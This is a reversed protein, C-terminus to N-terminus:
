SIEPRLTFLFARWKVKLLRLFFSFHSDADRLKYFSLYVIILTCAGAEMKEGKWEQSLIAENLNM